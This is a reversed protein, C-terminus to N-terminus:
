EDGDLEPHSLNLAAMARICWVEPMLWTEVLGPFRFRHSFIADVGTTLSFDVESRLFGSPKVQFVEGAILSCASM